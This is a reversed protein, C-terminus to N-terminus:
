EELSKGAMGGGPKICYQKTHGLKGCNANTCIPANPLKSSKSQATFTAHNKSGGHQDNELLSQENELFLKIDKSGYPASLSSAAIDWSIISRAHPFNDSLSNLLAICCLLDAQIDGMAFTHEILACIKEAMEPLPTDKTCQISLAQQLLQVQCVPGESQHHERLTYWNTATSKSMDPFPCESSTISSAIFAFALHSNAKWNALACTELSPCEATDGMIYNYLGNLSLAITIEK